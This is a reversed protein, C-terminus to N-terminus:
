RNTEANHPLSPTAPKCEMALAQVDDPIEMGDNHAGYWAGHDWTGVLAGNVQSTVVCKGDSWWSVTFIRVHKRALLEVAYIEGRYKRYPAPAKRKAASADRAEVTAIQKGEPSWFLKFTPM